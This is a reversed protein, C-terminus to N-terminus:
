PERTAMIFFQNGHRGVCIGLESFSCIASSILPSLACRKTVVAPSAGLPQQPAGLGIQIDAGAYQERRVELIGELKATIRSVADGECEGQLPACGPQARFTM